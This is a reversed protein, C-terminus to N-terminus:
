GRTSIRMPESSLSNQFNGNRALFKTEKKEGELAQCALKPVDFGHM